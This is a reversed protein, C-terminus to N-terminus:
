LVLQWLPLYVISENTSTALAEFVHNVACSDLFLSMNRLDWTLPVRFCNLIEFVQQVGTPSWETVKMKCSDCLKLLIYANRYRCWLKLYKYMLAWCIFRDFAWIESIGGFISFFSFFKVSSYNWPVIFPHKQMCYFIKCRMDHMTLNM